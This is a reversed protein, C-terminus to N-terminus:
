SKELVGRESKRVRRIIAVAEKRGCILNKLEKMRKSMLEVRRRTLKETANAEMGSM